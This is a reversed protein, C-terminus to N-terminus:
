AARRCLQQHCAIDCLHEAAEANLRHGGRYSTIRGVIRCGSLALDGVMDLAKHRACESDLRLPRRPGSADFIVLEDDTVHCGLGKARLQQAQEATVFTRAPALERIFADPTVAVSYSQEPVPSSAGYDLRYDVTLLGDTAPAVEIWCDADGLRSFRDIVLSPALAAQMLLGSRRLQDIIPLSSGDFGPVEAGSIEVRCNDIELGYLAAMVHEVMEVRAPGRQLVTRLQADSRNECRAKVAPCGPLDTRVFEIGTNVTAPYFSLTVERGSWYGRGVLRAPRSLTHQNRRRDM